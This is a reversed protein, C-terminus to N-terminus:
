NQKLYRLIQNRTTFTGSQLQRETRQNFCSEYGLDTSTVKGAILEIVDHITTM